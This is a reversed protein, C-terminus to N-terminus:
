NLENISKEPVAEFKEEAKEIETKQLRASRERRRLL